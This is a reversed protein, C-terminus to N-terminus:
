SLKQRSTELTPNTIALTFDTTLAVNTLRQVSTQSSRLPNERPANLFQSYKQRSFLELNLCILDRDHFRHTTEAFFAIQSLFLDLVPYPPLRFSFDPHVSKFRRGGSGWEPSRKETKFTFDKVYCRWFSKPLVKAIKTLMSNNLFSISGM